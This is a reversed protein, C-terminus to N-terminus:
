ADLGATSMPVMKAMAFVTELCLVLAVRTELAGATQDIASGLALGVLVHRGWGPPKAIAGCEFAGDCAAEAHVVAPRLEFAARLPLVRPRHEPTVSLAVDGWAADNVHAAVRRFHDELSGFDKFRARRPVLADRLV